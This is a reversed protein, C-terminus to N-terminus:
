EISEDQQEGHLQLQQIVINKDHIERNIAEIYTEQEKITNQLEEVNIKINHNAFPRTQIFKANSAFKLTNETEDIFYISPNIACIIFTRSNGM